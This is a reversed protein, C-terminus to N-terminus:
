WPMGGSTVVDVDSGMELHCGLHLHADSHFTKATKKQRSVTM